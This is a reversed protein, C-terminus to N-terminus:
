PTGPIKVPVPDRWPKGAAYHQLRELFASLRPDGTNGIGAIARKQLNVAETFNGAEAQAAAMTDLMQVSQDMVPALLAVARKGDRLTDDPCTALLWALNNVSPLYSRVAAKEFLERARRYDRPVGVGRYHFSALMDQAPAHDQASAKELWQLAQPLDRATGAGAVLKEALLLQAGADGAEARARVAAFDQAPSLAGAQGANVANKMARLHQDLAPMKEHVASVAQGALERNLVDAHGLIRDGNPSELVRRIAHLEEPTYLTLYKDALRERVDPWRVQERWFNDIAGYMPKMEPNREIQGQAFERMALNFRDEAHSLALVAFADNRAQDPARTTCATTALVLAILPLLRFPM